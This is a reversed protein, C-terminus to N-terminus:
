CLWRRRLGPLIPNNTAFRVSALASLATLPASGWTFGGWPEGGREQVAEIGWARSNHVVLRQLQALQAWDPPLSVAGVLELFTLQIPLHALPPLHSWRQWGDLTRYRQNVEDFAARFSAAALKVLCRNPLAGLMAAAAEAHATTCKFLTLSCKCSLLLAHVLPPFSPAPQPAGHVPGKCWGRQAWRLDALAPLARCTADLDASWQASITLAKPQTAAALAQRVSAPVMRLAYQLRLATVKSAVSGFQAWDERHGHALSCDIRLSRLQSFRRLDPLLAGHWDVAVELETLSAPLAHLAGCVALSQMHCFSSLATLLLAGSLEASCLLAM